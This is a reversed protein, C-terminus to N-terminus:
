NFWLPISVGYAAARQKTLCSKISGCLFQFMNVHFARHFAFESKISGCLFQFKWGQKVQGYM